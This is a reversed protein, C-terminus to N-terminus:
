KDYDLEFLGADKDQMLKLAEPGGRNIAALYESFPKKQNGSPTPGADRAATAVKPKPQPAPKPKPEATTDKQRAEWDAKVGRLAYMAAEPDAFRDRYQNYFKRVDDREAEPVKQLQLDELTRQKFEIYDQAVPDGQQAARQLAVLRERASDIQSQLNPDPTPPREARERRLRELESKEGLSQEHAQKLRENEAKLEAIQEPTLEGETGGEPADTPTGTGEDPIGGEPQDDLTGAKPDEAM